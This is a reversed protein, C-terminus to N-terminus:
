TVGELLTLVEFWFDVDATPVSWLRTSLISVAQERLGYYQRASMDLRYLLDAVKLEEPAIYSQYILNYLKEGNGPKKKLVTLADNVMDLLMRSKRVSTLRNELKRNNMSMELELKDILEDFDDFPQELEEVVTDPFCEVM